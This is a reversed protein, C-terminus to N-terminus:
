NPAAGGQAMGRTRQDIQRAADLQIRAIEGAVAKNYAITQAILDQRAKLEAELTRQHRVATDREYIAETLERDVRDKEDMRAKLHAQANDRANVMYERDRTASAIRDVMDTRQMHFDKFLVEYDHLPRMYRGEGNVVEQEHIEAVVVENGAQDEYVIEGKDNVSKVRVVHGQEDEYVVKGNEDVVVLRGTLGAAAMEETTMIQGDHVYETLGEEPLLAALRAEEMGAFVDHSDVPMIEYLAWPGQSGTLRQLEQDNMKMSPALQVQKDAVDTVLFEGIYQGGQGLNAPDAEAEEFVYLVTNAGIRHPDPLGTTVLVRGTQPDAQQPTCNMWVRGRDILLKHLELRLRKTGMKGGAGEEDGNAEELLYNENELRAIEQEHKQALTCWHQHTKLTRAAMYFFPLLAVFILGILIKNWISM